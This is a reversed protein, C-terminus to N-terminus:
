DLAQKATVVATREEWIWNGSIVDEIEDLRSWYGVLSEIRCGGPCVQAAHPRACSVREHFEMLKECEEFGWLFNTLGGVDMTHTLVAM